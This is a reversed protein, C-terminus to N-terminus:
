IAAVVASRSESRICGDFHAFQNCGCIYSRMINAKNRQGKNTKRTQADAWENKAKIWWGSIGDM